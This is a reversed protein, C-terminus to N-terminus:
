NHANCMYPEGNFKLPFEEEYSELEIKEGMEVLAIAPLLICNAGEKFSITVVKKRLRFSEMNAAILAEIFDESDRVSHNSVM